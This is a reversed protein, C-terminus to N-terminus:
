QKEGKLPRPLRNVEDCWQCQCVEGHKDYYAGTKDCCQCVAADLLELSKLNAQKLREIEEHQALITRFVEIDVAAKNYGMRECFALEYKIQEITLIM